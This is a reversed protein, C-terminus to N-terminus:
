FNLEIDFADKMRAAFLCTIKYFLAVIRLNDIALTLETM